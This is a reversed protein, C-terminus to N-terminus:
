NLKGDLVGQQIENLCDAWAVVCNIRTDNSIRGAFRSCNWGGEEDDAVYSLNGVTTVTLVNENGIKSACVALYSGDKEPKVKPYPMFKIEM